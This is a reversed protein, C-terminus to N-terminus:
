RLVHAFLELAAAWARADAEPSYRIAEPMNRKAAKQNTFSHVTRGYVNMQWDAGVNRMESEFEARQSAPIFPDDGGVCVLVRAKIAGPDLAPLKTALTTHFGVAAKIDAGSRALELPMPFCFGMAAIRAADVEPRGALAQLAGAARARTQSPADFLPQLQAMAEQLEDVVRGEGHLDCALAVYGLAVLREAREIAHEDLGFAEPFVLVGARPGPAPEFLLRSRWTIGDAQYTLTEQHM